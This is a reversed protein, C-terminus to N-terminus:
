SQANSFTEGNQIYIQFTDGEYESVVCLAYGDIAYHKLQKQQTGLKYVAEYKTWDAYFEELTKSEFKMRKAISLFDRQVIKEIDIGCNYDSFCIAIYDESHSISFFKKRNKLYPKGNIFEITRDKIGYIEKLIRDTMLYSLSHIVKKMENSFNRQQFNKLLSSEINKECSKKVLFIDM